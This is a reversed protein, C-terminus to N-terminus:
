RVNDITDHSCHIMYLFHSSLIDLIYNENFNGNQRPRLTNFLFCNSINHNIEMKENEISCCYAMSPQWWCIHYESIKAFFMQVITKSQRFYSNDM